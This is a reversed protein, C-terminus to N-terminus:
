LEDKPPQINPMTGRGEPMEGKPKDKSLGGTGEPVPESRIPKYVLPNEDEHAFFHKRFDLVQVLKHGGITGNGFDFVNEVRVDPMGCKDLIGRIQDGYPPRTMDLPTFSNWQKFRQDNCRPRKVRLKVRDGCGPSDPDASCTNSDGKGEDKGSGSSDSGPEAPVPVAGADIADADGGAKTINAYFADAEDCGNNVLVVWKYRPRCDLKAGEMGGRTGEGVGEGEMSEVVLNRDLFERVGASPMHMLTDKTLLTDLFKPIGSSEPRLVNGQRFVVAMDKGRLPGRVSGPGTVRKDKLSPDQELQMHKTPRLIERLLNERLNHYSYATLNNVAPGVFREVTDAIVDGILDVGTYFLHNPWDVFLQWGSPWHGCSAEVMGKVGRKKLFKGLWVAFPKQTFYESGPGSMAQRFKGYGPDMFHTREQNVWLTRFWGPRYREYAEALETENSFDDVKKMPFGSHDLEPDSASAAKAPSPPAGYGGVPLPLASLSAAAVFGTLLARIRPRPM